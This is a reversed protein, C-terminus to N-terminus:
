QNSINLQNMKGLENRIEEMNILDTDGKTILQIVLNEDVHFEDAIGQIIQQMFVANEEIQTNEASKLNDILNHIESAYPDSFISILELSATSQSIKIKNALELNFARRANKSSKKLKKQKLIKKSVVSSKTMKAKNKYENTKKIYLQLDKLSVKQREFFSLSDYKISNLSIDHINTFLSDPTKKPNEELIKNTFNDTNNSAVDFVESKEVPVKQFRGNVFTVKYCVKNRENDISEQSVFSKDLNENQNVISDLNEKSNRGLAEFQSCRNSDLKTRKIFFKPENPKKPSRKSQFKERINIIKQRTMEVTDLIQKIKKYGDREPDDVIWLHHEPATAVAKSILEYDSEDLKSLYTRIRDRISDNTRALRISLKNCIFNLKLSKQYKRCILMIEFDEKVTYFNIKRNVLVTNQNEKVDISALNNSVSNDSCTATQTRDQTNMSNENIKSTCSEKNKQDYLKSVEEM